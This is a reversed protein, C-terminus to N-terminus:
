QVSGSAVSLHPPYVSDTIEGGVLLWEESNLACCLETEKEVWLWLCVDWLQSIYKLPAIYVNNQAKIM